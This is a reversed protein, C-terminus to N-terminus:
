WEPKLGNYNNQYFSLISNKIRTNHNQGFLEANELNGNYFRFFLFNGTMIGDFIRDATFATAATYGWLGCWFLSLLGSSYEGLYIQPLGPLFASIIKMVEPNVLDAEGLRCLAALSDGPSLSDLIAAASALNGAFLGAIGNWYRIEDRREPSRASALNLIKQATAPSGKLIENKAHEILAAAEDHTNQASNRANLFYPSALRYYGGKKYAAAIMLNAEHHLASDPAFFLYRKLETIAHFYEARTYLEKGKRFLGSADVGTQAFTNVQCLLMLVAIVSRM